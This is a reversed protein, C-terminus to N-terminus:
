VNIQAYSALEEAKDSIQQQTQELVAMVLNENKIKTKGFLAPYAINGAFVEKFEKLKLYDKEDIINVYDCVYVFMDGLVSKAKSINNTTINKKMKMLKNSLELYIEALRSKKLPLIKKFYEMTQAYGIEMLNSRKDKPMNFDVINVDGTNIVIYDYKDKENYISMIFETAISTAYSYLSNIYEITNKENGEFDGELRFELVRENEPQLNKSLKWM